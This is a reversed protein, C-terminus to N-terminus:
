RLHRLQHRQQTLLWERRAKTNWADGIVSALMELPFAWWLLVLCVSRTARDFNHPLAPCNREVFQERAVPIELPEHFPSVQKKKEDNPLARYWSDKYIIYWTLANWHRNIEVSRMEGEQRVTRRIIGDDMMWRVFCDTLWVYHYDNSEMRTKRLVM